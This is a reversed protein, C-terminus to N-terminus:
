VDRFPPNHPKYPYPIPNIGNPYQPHVVATQLIGNHMFSPSIIVPEIVREKSHSRSGKNSHIRSGNYSHRGSDYGSHRGSDYGSHRGSDYGSHRGSDYGSDSDWFDGKELKPQINDSPKIKHDTPRPTDSM